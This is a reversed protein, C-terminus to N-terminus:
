DLDESLEKIRQHTIKAHRMKVPHPNTLPMLLSPFETLFDVGVSCLHAMDARVTSPPIFQWFLLRVSMQILIIAVISFSAM